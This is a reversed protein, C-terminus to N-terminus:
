KLDRPAPFFMVRSLPCSFRQRGLSGSGSLVPPPFLVFEFMLDVMFIEEDFFIAKVAIM